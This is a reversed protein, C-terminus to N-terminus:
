RVNREDNIVGCKEMYKRCLAVSKNLEESLSEQEKLISITEIITDVHVSAEKDRWEKDELYRRTERLKKIIDDLENM